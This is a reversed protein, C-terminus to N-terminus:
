ADPRERRRVEALTPLRVALRLGNWGDSVPDVGLELSSNVQRFLAGIRDRQNAADSASAPVRAMAGRRSEVAISVWSPDGSYAVTVSGQSPMADRKAADVLILMSYILVPKVCHVPPIEGGHTVACGVDRLEGHMAQLAVIQPLMTRLEIAEARARPDVPLLRVLEVLAHLQGVEAGLARAIRQSTMDGFEVLGAVGSLAAVRNSLAHAIGRLIGDRIGGLTDPTLDTGHVLPCGVNPVGCM